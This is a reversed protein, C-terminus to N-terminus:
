DIIKSIIGASSLEKVLAVLKSDLSWNNFDDTEYQSRQIIEKNSSSHKCMVIKGEPIFEYSFATDSGNYLAALVNKDSRLGNDHLLGDIKEFSIEGRLMSKRSDLDEELVRKKTYKSNTLDYEKGNCNVGVVVADTKIVYFCEICSYMATDLKITSKILPMIKALKPRNM